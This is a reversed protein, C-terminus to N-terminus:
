AIIDPYLIDEIRAIEDKLKLKDKKLRRLELQDALPSEALEAIREDLARHEQRLRELQTRLIDDPDMVNM